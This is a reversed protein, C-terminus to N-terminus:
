CLGGTMGIHGYCWEFQPQASTAVPEVICV